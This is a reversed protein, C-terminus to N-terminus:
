SGVGAALAQEVYWKTAEESGVPLYNILVDVKRSKLIGVV